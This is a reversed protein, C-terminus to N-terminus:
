DNVGGVSRGLVLFLIILEGRNVKCHKVRLIFLGGKNVNFHKVCLIRIGSKSSQQWWM